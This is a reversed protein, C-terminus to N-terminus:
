TAQIMDYVPSNTAGGVKSIWGGIRLLFSRNKVNDASSLKRCSEGKEASNDGPQRDNMCLLYRYCPLSNACPTFILNGM